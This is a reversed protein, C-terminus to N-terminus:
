VNCNKIIRIHKEKVSHQNTVIVSKCTPCQGSASGNASITAQMFNTCEPCRIRIKKSSSKNM